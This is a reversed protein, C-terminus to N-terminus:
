SRPLIFSIRQRPAIAKGSKLGAVLAQAHKNFKSMVDDNAEIQQFSHEEVEPLFNNAFKYFM